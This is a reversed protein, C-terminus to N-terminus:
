STAPARERRSGLLFEGVAPEAFADLGAAEAFLHPNGAGLACPALGMATAVLYMSQYLVGVNKLTLAYAMGSYKWSLRGFRSALTILVQPEGPLDAALSADRLLAEVRANREALRVLRHELPDYHYLGPSLRTCANVAVYLELDYMAGGSPYPRDSIEYPEGHPAVVEIVSRVRAVRYLFEGLQHLDIPADGYERISQRAELVSGFPPDTRVLHDLDPRDLPIIPAAVLPKVAPPPAIKGLFRFTAGIPYDHAAQRSRAHFLLDHFEWFALAPDESPAGGDGSEVVLGTSALLDLLARATAPALGNGFSELDTCSRPQALAAIWAAAPPGHLFARASSLPSELLLDDGEARLYAFRSLRFRAEAAVPSRFRFGRAMPVVTLLPEGAVPISCQLLGREAWRQIGYYFHPLAAAGDLGAARDSLVEVTAWGSAMARLATLLGRTLDHLRIRRNGMVITVAGEEAPAEALTADPRLRIALAQEM